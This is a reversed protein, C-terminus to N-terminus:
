SGSFLRHAMEILDQLQWLVPQLLSPWSLLFTQPVQRPLHDPRKLLIALLLNRPPQIPLLSTKRIQQQLAIHLNTDDRQADDNLDASNCLSFITKLDQM